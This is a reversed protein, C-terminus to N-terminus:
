SRRFANDMIKDLEKEYLERQLIQLNLKDDKRAYDIEEVKFMNSENFKTIQEYKEFLKEPELSLLKALDENSPNSQYVKIAWDQTIKRFKNSLEEMAELKSKADQNLIRYRSLSEELSKNSAVETHLQNEVKELEVKANAKSEELAKKASAVETQLQNEVKELEVKANSKSEELVKKVSAVETKLKNKEEDNAIELAQIKSNKAECEVCGNYNEQYKSEELAELKNKADANEIEIAQVKSNKEVCKVCNDETDTDGELQDEYDSGSNEGKGEFDQNSKRYKSLSEKLSKNLAAETQLQNERKELEVTNNVPVVKLFEKLDWRLMAGEIAYTFNQIQVHEDNLDKSEELAKKASSAKNLTKKAEDNAIELRQIKNTKTVFEDSNNNDETDSGSNEGKGEFVRKLNMGKHVVKVHKELKLNTEFKKSCLKCEFLKKLDKIRYGLKSKKTSESSEAKVFKGEHALAVHRKLDTLETFVAHCVKCKIISKEAKHILVMHRTLSKKESFKSKCMGCKFPKKEEHVSSIHTKLDKETKQFYSPIVYKAHFNRSTELHMLQIHQMLIIKKPFKARCIECELNKVDIDSESNQFDNKPKKEERAASITTESKRKRKRRTM